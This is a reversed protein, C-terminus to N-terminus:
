TNRRPASNYWPLSRSHARSNRCKQGGGLPAPVQVKFGLKARPHVEHPEDRVLGVFSFLLGVFRQLLPRVGTKLPHMVVVHDVADLRLQVAAARAGRPLRDGLVPRGELARKEQADLELADLGPIQPRATRQEHGGRLRVGRWNREIARPSALLIARSFIAHDSGSDHRSIAVTAWRSPLGCTARSLSASAAAPKSRACM